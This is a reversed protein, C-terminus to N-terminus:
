SLNIFNKIMEQGHAQSKEPHFQVGFINEKEYLGIYEKDYQYSACKGQLGNSVAFKHCFYFPKNAYNINQLLQCEQNNELTRWGIHPVKFRKADSPAIKEVNTEIWGLGNCDGEESYNSMLQFGLCIGLVPIKEDCIKKNLLTIINSEVMSQMASQFHGVGPMIIADAAEIKIPSNSYIANCNINKLVRKISNANGHGYDLILVTKSM